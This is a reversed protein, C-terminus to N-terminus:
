QFCIFLTSFYRVRLIPRAWSFFFRSCCGAKDISSSQGDKFLNRPGKKQRTEILPENETSEGKVGAVKAKNM